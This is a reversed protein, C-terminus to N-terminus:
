EEPIFFPDEKQIRIRKDKWMTMRKQIAEMKGAAWEPTPPPAPIADQLAPDQTKALHQDLSERLQAVTGAHAPDDVLNVLEQPDRYLDFLQEEPMPVDGCGAAELVEYAEGRDANFYLLASEPNGYRRVYRYRETRVSRLPLYRGHYGQESFLRDHIPTEKEGSVMPLLSKGELGDPPDLNLLECFTPFLDMHSALGEIVRGGSFGGPGRILTAVGLGRDNLHTKVGPLGPGHDTTFVVLTENALGTEDLADLLLGVRCDFYETARYQMAAEWRTRPTDPLHPLPRVFRTDLPGMTERSLVFSRDWNSHHTLGYGVNLFFPKEHKEKLFAIAAPTTLDDGTEGAEGIPEILRDYPLKALEKPTTGTVHQIGTLVTEMGHDSFHRAVHEDYDRLAWGQNTLGHMGVQHPYRGTVLAARSPSCTPAVCFANRFLVGEEALRQLHPTRPTYGYPGIYRGLDHTHLYIINM